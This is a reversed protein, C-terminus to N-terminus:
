ACIGLLNTDSDFDASVCDSILGISENTGIQVPQKKM